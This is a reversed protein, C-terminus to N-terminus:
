RGQMVMGAGAEEEWEKIEEETMFVEEKGFGKRRIMDIRAYVTYYDKGQSWVLVELPNDEVFHGDILFYKKDIKNLFDLSQLQLCSQNCGFDAM